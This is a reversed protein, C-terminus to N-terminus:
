GRKLGRLDGVDIVRLGLIGAVYVILGIVGAPVLGLPSTLEMVGTMAAAVVITAVIRWPSLRLRLAVVATGLMLLMTVGETAVTAWASGLAGYRPILVVNMAINLVAGIAAYLALRWLLNLLPALYGALTGYCILVFALMLIPLVDASAAFEPGYLLSVIQDSLAVTVALVPLSVVAMVDTAIQVLRRVREPDREWIASFVPFFSTVVATPLFLLPSLFRYAAGYLGAEESSSLHILLVADIEYYITILLAAVGLPIAARALPAILRRGARWEIKGHRTTTIVQLTGVTAVSASYCIAFGVVGADAFSLALVSILWMFALLLQFMQPLGSRLRSQFVAMLSQPGSSLITLAMIWGVVHAESGGGLLLPVAIACIVTAIVALSARATALAGLWAGEREPEAAMRQTAVTTFGLETLAGFIGVFASTATWVGFGDPDLTRATLSVTVISIPISIVRAGVQIGVNTVIHRGGAEAAAGAAGGHLLRRVLARLTALM